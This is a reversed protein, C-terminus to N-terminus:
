PKLIQQDVYTSTTCITLCAVVGEFYSLHELIVLVKTCRDNTYQPPTFMKIKKYKISPCVNENKNNTNQPPTFM